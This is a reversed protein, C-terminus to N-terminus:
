ESGGRKDLDSPTTAGWEVGHGVGGVSTFHHRISVMLVSPSAAVQIMRIPIHNREHNVDLTPSKLTFLRCTGNQEKAKM